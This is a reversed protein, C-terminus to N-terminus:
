DVDMEDGEADTAKGGLIGVVNELDRVESADFGRGQGQWEGDRVEGNEGLELGRTSEMHRRTQSEIYRQREIQPTLEPSRPLLSPLTALRPRLTALLKTLAPLQSMAFATTDTLPQRNQTSGNSQLHSDVNLAKAQANHTLFGFPSSTPTPLQRDPTTDKDEGEV